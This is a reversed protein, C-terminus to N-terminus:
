SKTQNSYSSTNKTLNTYNAYSTAGNYPISAQNYTYSAQNYVDTNSGTKSQDTYSSTNKNQNTYTTM